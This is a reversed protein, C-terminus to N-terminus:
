LSKWQCFQCFKVFASNVPWFRFDDKTQDWLVDEASEALPRLVDLFENIVGMVEKDDKIETKM